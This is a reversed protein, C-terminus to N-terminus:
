RMIYWVLSQTLGAHWCDVGKREVWVGWWPPLVRVNFQESETVWKSQGRFATLERLTPRKKGPKELLFRNLFLTSSNDQATSVACPPLYGLYSTYKSSGNRKRTTEVLVVSQSWNIHITSSTNKSLEVSSTQQVQLRTQLLLVRAVHGETPLTSCNAWIHDSSSVISIGLILICKWPMLAIDM